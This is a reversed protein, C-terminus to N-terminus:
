IDGQFAVTLRNLIEDERHFFLPDTFACAGGLTEELIVPVMAMIEGPIVYLVDHNLDDNVAQWM